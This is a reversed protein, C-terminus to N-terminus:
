RVKDGAQTSFAVRHVYGTYGQPVTYLAQQTQGFGAPIHAWTHSPVGTTVSGVGIHINGINSLSGGSTLVYSRHVRWATNTMAVPTQGNLTVTETFAAWSNTYGEIQIVRAGDGAATDGANDSSVLPIQASGPYSYIGGYSWVTEYAAGVDPNYGYKLVSQTGDRQGNFLAVYEREQSPLGVNSM